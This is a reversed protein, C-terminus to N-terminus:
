RKNVENWFRIMFAVAAEQPTGEDDYCPGSAGCSCRVQIRTVNDGSLEGFVDPSGGCYACPVVNVTHTLKKM